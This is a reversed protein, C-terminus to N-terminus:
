HYRAWLLPRESDPHRARLVVRNQFEIRAASLRREKDEGSFVLDVRPEASAKEEQSAAPPVGARAQKLRGPWICMVMANGGPLLELLFNEAPM